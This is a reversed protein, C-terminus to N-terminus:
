DSSQGEASDDSNWLLGPVQARLEQYDLVPQELAHHYHALDQRLEELSEGVPWVPEDSFAEIHGANDYYVEYIAYEGDRGIVRYDWTLAM